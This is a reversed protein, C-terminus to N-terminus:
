PLAFLALTVTFKMGVWVGIKNLYSQCLKHVNFHVNHHRSIYGCQSIIVKILKEILINM